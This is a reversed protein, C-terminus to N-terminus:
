PKKSRKQVAEEALQKATEPSKASTTTHSNSIPTNIIPKPKDDDLLITRDDDKNQATQKEEKKAAKKDAKAINERGADLMKDEYGIDPVIGSSVTSKTTSLKRRGKISKYILGASNSLSAVSLATGLAGIIPAAIAAAPAAPSAIAPILITTALSAAAVGLSLGVNLLRRPVSKELYNLREKKEVVNFVGAYRQKFDHRMEEKADTMEQKHEKDHSGEPVHEEQSIKRLVSDLAKDSVSSVGKSVFKYAKNFTSSIGSRHLLDNAHLDFDFKPAPYDAQYTNAYHALSNERHSSIKQRTDPDISLAKFSAGQSKLEQLARDMDILQVSPPLLAKVAQWEKESLDPHMIFHERFKAFEELIIERNPQGQLLTPLQDRFLMIQDYVKRPQQYYAKAQEYSASDTITEKTKKDFNDDQMNLQQSPTQNIFQNGLHSYLLKLDDKVIKKGESLQIFKQKIEAPLDQSYIKEHTFQYIGIAKRLSSPIEVADFKQCLEAYETVKSGVPKLGFAEIRQAIANLQQTRQESEAQNALYLDEIITNLELVKSKKIGPQLSGDTIIKQRAAYLMTYLPDQGKAYENLLVNTEEPLKAKAIKKQLDSTSIMEKRLNNREARDEIYLATNRVVAVCSGAFVLPPVLVSAGAIIAIALPVTVLIGLGYGILPIIKQKTKLNKNELVDVILFGALGSVALAFVDGGLKALEGFGEGVKLESFSSFADKIHSTANLTSVHDAM